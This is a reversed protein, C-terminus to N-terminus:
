VKLIDTPTLVLITIDGRLAIPQKMIEPNSRIMKIWDDTSFDHTEFKSKYSDHEQDVLDKVKLNLRSSLEALQTGTLPTKLVDIELIALGEARAFALTKEAILSEPNYYITIQRKSTAIEGMNSNQSLTIM